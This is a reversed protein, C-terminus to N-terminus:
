AVSNPRALASEDNRQLLCPRGDRANILASLISASRYGYTFRVTPERRALVHAGWALVLGLCDGLNHGADALLAISNAPLGYIVQAIVLALNLATAIAFATGFHTPAHSHPHAHAHDHHHDHPM